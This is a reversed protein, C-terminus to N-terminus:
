GLHAIIQDAIARMGAENPHGYEKEIDALEVCAVDLTRCVERIGDAIQPKLQTNTIHVIRTHPCHEKLYRFLFGIAPLVCKLDEESQGDYCLTGLPSNAWTDNTGGFVFLTDIPVGGVTGDSFRKQARGVFSTQPCYCGNYGTNCITSGSFSENLLLHSDTETLVSHWWTKEVCGVKAHDPADTGYYCANGQPIHGFYTSYSDGLIAVNGFSRM